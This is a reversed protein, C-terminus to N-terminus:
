GELTLRAVYPYEHAMPPKHDEPRVKESSAKAKAPNTHLAFQPDTVQFHEIVKKTKTDLIEVESIPAYGKLALPEMRKGLNQVAETPTLGRGDITITPM